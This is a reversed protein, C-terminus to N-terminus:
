LRLSSLLKSNCAASVDLRHDPGLPGMEVVGGSAKILAVGAAIDWLAVGREWYCDILGRAVWALMLAASGLMRVKGFRGYVRGAQTITEADFETKVPFGTCLLGDAPNVIASVSIAEQNCWAGCGVIGSYLETRNVDFIVGLLPEGGCWLGLSICNLPVGRHFNASGDVPDLIWQLSSETSIEGCEESLISFDTEAQLRGILVEEMKRDAQIKWERGDREEIQRLRDNEASLIAGAGQVAVTAIEAWEALNASSFKM